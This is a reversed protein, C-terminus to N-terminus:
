TEGRLVTVDGAVIREIEGTPTQLLLAGESDVGIVSGEAIVAGAGLGGAVGGPGIGSAVRVRKGRMRFFERWRELIPTFGQARLTDLQAELEELLREAFAARDLPKGLEAALSTAIARLEQPFDERATNVNVGVGLVAAAVSNGDLQVSLNIGSTKRGSLLVDNPWKLEVVESSGLCESACRAVAVAAAFIQEHAREPSCRPRLILSCYIGVGPPSFFSRGLRGRGSTQREALVATGDSAGRAALEEARLNTSDIEAHAELPQAVWRTRPKLERLTAAM